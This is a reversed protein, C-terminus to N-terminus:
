PKFFDVPVDPVFTGDALRVDVHTIEGLLNTHLRTVVGTTGQAYTKKSLLGHTVYPKTFVVTNTEDGAV